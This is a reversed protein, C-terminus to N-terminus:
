KINSITVLHYEHQPELRKPTSNIHLKGTIYTNMFILNPYSLPRWVRSKSHSNTESQAMEQDNGVKAMKSTPGKKSVSDLM